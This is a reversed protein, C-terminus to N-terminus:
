KNAKKQAQNTDSRMNGERDNTQRNASKEKRHADDKANLADKQGAKNQQNQM